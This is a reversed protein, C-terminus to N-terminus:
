APRLLDGGLACVAASNGSSAARALPAAFDPQATCDLTHSSDHQVLGTQSYAHLLLLLLLGATWSDRDRDRCCFAATKTYPRASPASVSHM